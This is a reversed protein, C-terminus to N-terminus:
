GLRHPTEFRARTPPGSAWPTPANTHRGPAQGRGLFQLEEPALPMGAESRLTVRISSECSQQRGSVVPHVYGRLSQCDASKESVCVV